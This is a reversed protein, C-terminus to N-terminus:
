ELKQNIALYNNDDYFTRMLDEFCTTVNHFSIEKKGEVELPILGVNPDYLWFCNREFDARLAILHDNSKDLHGFGITVWGNSKKLTGDEQWNRLDDSFAKLLQQLTVTKTEELTTPYIKLLVEKKFGELELVKAETAAFQGMQSDHFARKMVSYAQVYRHGPTIEAAPIEKPSLSPKKQSFGSVHNSLAECVGADLIDGSNFKGSKDYGQIIEVAVSPGWTKYFLLRNQFKADNISAKLTDWVPAGQAFVQDFERKLDGAFVEASVGPEHFFGKFKQVMLDLQEGLAKYKCAEARRVLRKAAIPCNETPFDAPLQFPACKQHHKWMENKTNVYFSYLERFKQIQAPETIGVTELRQKFAFDSLEQKLVGLAPSDQEVTKLRKSIYESVASFLLQKDQYPHTADLKYGLMGLLNKEASTGTNIKRVKKGHNILYANNIINNLMKLKKAKLEEPLRDIAQDIAFEKAIVKQSPPLWQKCALAIKQLLQNCDTELKVADAVQLLKEWAEADLESTGDFLERRILLLKNFFKDTAEKGVRKEIVDYLANIKEMNVFATDACRLIQAIREDTLTALPNATLEPVLLPNNLIEAATEEDYKSILAGKLKEYQNKLNQLKIHQVINEAKELDGETAERDAFGKQMEVVLQATKLDNIQKPDIGFEREIRAEIFAVPDNKLERLKRLNAYRQFLGAKFEKSVSLNFLPTMANKLFLEAPEKIHPTVVPDQYRALFQGIENSVFKTDPAEEGFQGKIAAIIRRNFALVFLGLADTNRCEHDEPSIQAPAQARVTAPAPKVPQPQAKKQEPTATKVPPVVIPQPEKKQESVVPPVSRLVPQPDKKQVPVIPPVSRLAPQSDKKQESVVPPVSKLVPQPDKKQTDGTVPVLPTEVKPFLSLPSPNTNLSRLDVLSTIPPATRSDRREEPKPTFSGKFPKPDKHSAQDKKTHQNEKNEQKQQTPKKFGEIHKFNTKYFGFLILIYFFLKKLCCDDRKLVVFRRKSLPIKGSCKKVEIAIKCYTQEKKPLTQDKIFQTFLVRNSILISM